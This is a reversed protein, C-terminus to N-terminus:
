YGRSRDALNVLPRGEVLRQLNDLFLDATFDSVHDHTGSAHPTIMANPLEWLPSTAPLPEVEFVDLSAGGLHGSQLARTLAGEDFIPGRSVNIVVAGPRLLALEREGIRGRTEPTLPVAAVFYDAERLVWDLADMGRIEAPEPGDDLADIEPRRYRETVARGPDRRVAVTRMGLGHVIHAVRRGVGGYGLLGVTRGILINPRFSSRVTWDRVGRYEELRWLRHAHFLIAATVYQAMATSALGSATTVAVSPALRWTVTGTEQNVGVSPLQVWRLSAIRDLVERELAEDGAKEDGSLGFAYRSDVGRVDPLFDGLMAQAQPHRALVDLLEDTSNAVDREVTVGLEAARRIIREADVPEIESATILGHTLTTM